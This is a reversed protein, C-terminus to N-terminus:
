FEAITISNLVRSSTIYTSFARERWKHKSDDEDERERKRERERERERETEREAIKNKNPKRAYQRLLTYVYVSYVTTNWHALTSKPKGHM